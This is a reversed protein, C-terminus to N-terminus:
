EALTRIFKRVVVDNGISCKILYFGAGAAPVRTGTRPRNVDVMARAVSRGQLDLLEATFPKGAFSLPLEVPRGFVPIVVSPAAVRRVAPDATGVPDPPIKQQKYVGFTNLAVCAQGKTIKLRVYRATVSDFKEIWKYWIAKAAEGTAQHSM